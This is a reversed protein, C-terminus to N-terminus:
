RSTLEGALQDDTAHFRDAAVGAMQGLSRMTGTLAKRHDTWNGSFSGMAAAIAGSGYATDYASALDDTDQGALSSLTGHMWSLLQYDVKLNAV